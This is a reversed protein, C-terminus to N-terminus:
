PHSSVSIWDSFQIVSSSLITLLLCNIYICTHLSLAHSFVPNGYMDSVTRIEWTFTCWLCVGHLSVVFLCVLTMFGQFKHSQKSHWNWFNDSKFIINIEEYYKPFTETKFYVKEKNIKLPYPFTLNEKLSWTKLFSGSAELEWDEFEKKMACKLVQSKAGGM